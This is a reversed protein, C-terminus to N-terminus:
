IMFFDINDIYYILGCESVLCPRDNIIKYYKSKKIQEKFLPMLVNRILYDKPTHDTGIVYQLKEFSKAHELNYIVPDLIIQAYNAHNEKGDYLVGANTIFVTWQYAM